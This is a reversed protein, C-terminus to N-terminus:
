VKIIGGYRPTTQVVLRAMNALYVPSRNILPETTSVPKYEDPMNLTFYKIWNIQLPPFPFIIFPPKFTYLVFEYM